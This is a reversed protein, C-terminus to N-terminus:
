YKDTSEEIIEVKEQEKNELINIVWYKDISEELIAERKLKKNNEFINMENKNDNFICIKKENGITLNIYFAAAKPWSKYIIYKTRNYFKFKNLIRATKYGFEEMEKINLKTLNYDPEIIYDLVIKYFKNKM